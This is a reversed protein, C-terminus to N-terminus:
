NPRQSAPWHECILKSQSEDSSLYSPAYGQVIQDSINL